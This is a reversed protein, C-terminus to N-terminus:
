AFVIRRDKHLIGALFHRRYDALLLGIRRVGCNHADLERLLELFDADLRYENIGAVRMRLVLVRRIVQDVAQPLSSRARCHRSPEGAPTQAAWLQPWRVALHPINASL